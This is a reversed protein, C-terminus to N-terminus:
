QGPNLRSDGTLQFGSILLNQIELPRLTPDPYLRLILEYANVREPAIGIAYRAMAEANVLDQGMYYAVGASYAYDYNDADREVAKAYYNGSQSYAGKQYADYAIEAYPTARWALDVRALAQQGAYSFSWGVLSAAVVVLLILAVIGRIHKMWFSNEDRDDYYDEEEYSYDDDYEDDNEDLFMDDPDFDRQPVYTESNKRVSAIQPAGFQHATSLDPKLGQLRVPEKRLNESLLESVSESLDKEEPESFDVNLPEFTEVNEEEIPNDFVAEQEVDASPVSLVPEAKLPEEEQEPIVIPAGCFPCFLMNEMVKKGCQSCYM